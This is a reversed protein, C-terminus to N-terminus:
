LPMNGHKKGAHEGPKKDKLLKLLKIFWIRTDEPHIVAIDYRGILAQYNLPYNWDSKFYGM